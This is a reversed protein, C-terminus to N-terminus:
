FFPRFRAGGRCADFFLFLRSESSEGRAEISSPSRPLSQPPTGVLVRSSSRPRSATAVPSTGADVAASPSPAAAGGDHPPQHHNPGGKIASWLAAMANANHRAWCVLPTPTPVRTGKAIRHQVNPHLDAQRGLLRPEPHTGGRGVRPSPRPGGLCRHATPPGPSQRQAPHVVPCRPATPHPIPPRDPSAGLGGPGAPQQAALRSSHLHRRAKRAKKRDQRNRQGTGTQIHVRLRVRRQFSSPTSNWRKARTRRSIPHGRDPPPPYLLRLIPTLQRYRRSHDIVVLAPRQHTARQLDVSTPDQQLHLTQIGPWPCPLLHLFPGWVPVHFRHRQPLPRAKRGPPTTVADRIGRIGQITFSSDTSAQTVGPFYSIFACVCVCVCVCVSRPTQFLFFLSSTTSKCRRSDLSATDPCVFPSATVDHVM